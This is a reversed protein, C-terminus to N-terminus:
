NIYLVNTEEEGWRATVATTGAQGKLAVVIASKTVQVYEGDQGYLLVWAWVSEAQPLAKRLEKATTIDNSAAAAGPVWIYDNLNKVSQADGGKAVIEALLKEYHAMQEPTPTTGDDNHMNDDGALDFCQQCLEMGIADTTGRTLRSCCTCNFVGQGRQFHSNSKSM